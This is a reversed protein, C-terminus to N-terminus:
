DPVNSFYDAYGLVAWTPGNHYDISLKLSMIALMGLLVDIRNSSNTNSIICSMFLHELLIRSIKGINGSDCFMSPAVECNAVISKMHEM